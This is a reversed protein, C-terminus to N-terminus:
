DLDKELARPIFDELQSFFIYPYLKWKAKKPLGIIVRSYDQFHPSFIHVDPCDGPPPHELALEFRAGPEMRETIIVAVDCVKSRRQAALHYDFVEVNVSGSVEVIEFGNRRLFLLLEVARKRFERAKGFSRYLSGRAYGVYLKKM